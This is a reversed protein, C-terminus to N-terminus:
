SSKDAPTTSAPIIYLLIVREQLSAKNLHFGSDYPLIEKHLIDVFLVYNVCVQQVEKRKQWINEKPPPAPVLKVPAEKEKPTTPKSSKGEEFVDEDGSLTSDRRVRASGASPPPAVVPLFALFICM